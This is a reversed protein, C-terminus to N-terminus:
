TTPIAPAAAALQRLADLFGSPAGIATVAPLLAVAVQSAGRCSALSMRDVAPGSYRTINVRPSNSMTVSLQRAAAEAFSDYAVVAKAVEDLVTALTELSAMVDAGLEPLREVVVDCREDDRAATVAASLERQKQEAGGIQLAAHAVKDDAEALAAASVAEGEGSTVRQRLDAAESRLRSETSVLGSYVEHAADRAAEAETLASM